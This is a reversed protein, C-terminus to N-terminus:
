SVAFDAFAPTEVSLRLRFMLEAVEQKLEKRRILFPSPSSPSGASSGSGKRLITTWRCNALLAEPTSRSPLTSLRGCSARLVRTQESAFSFTPLYSLSRTIRRDSDNALCLSQKIVADNHETLSDSCSSPSAGAGGQM